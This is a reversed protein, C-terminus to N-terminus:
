VCVCMVCLVCDSSGSIVIEEGGREAHGRGNQRTHVRRAQDLWFSNSSQSRQSVVVSGLTSRAQPTMCTSSPPSSSPTLPYSFSSGLESGRWRKGMPSSAAAKSPRCNDSAGNAQPPVKNCKVTAERRESVCVGCKCMRVYM